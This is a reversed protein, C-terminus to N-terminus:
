QRFKIFARCTREFNKDAWGVYGKALNIGRNATPTCDTSSWYVFNHDLTVGGSILIASQITTFKSLIYGMEGCSPLYWDGQKTGVTHYRWCCCAAPYYGAEGSNTIASSTKWDSQRVALNTLIETNGKGNFDSLANTDASPSSTQYYQPNRSDDEKYPSPAHYVTESYYYTDSDYPNQLTTFKDSSLYAEDIVGKISSQINATNGLHPCMTFNPLETDYDMGGFYIGKEVTGGIDPTNYDMPVLSMVGCSGDGYVNHSTPVVVVGIPTGGYQTQPYILLSGNYYCLLDGAVADEISKPKYPYAKIFIRNTIM